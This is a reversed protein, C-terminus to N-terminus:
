ALNEYETGKAAQAWTMNEPFELHGGDWVPGKATHIYRKSGDPNFALGRFGWKPAVMHMTKYLDIHSGALDPKGSAEVIPYLDVGRGLLHWSHSTASHGSALASKQQTVTRITSGVHTDLGYSTKLEERLGDLAEKVQPLLGNVKIYESIRPAVVVAGGALLAALVVALFVLKWKM